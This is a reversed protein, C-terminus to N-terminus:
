GSRLRSLRQAADKYNLDLSVLKEYEAIAEATSGRDELLRALQYRGDKAEESLEDEVLPLFLKYQQIALDILGRKAFCIALGRHSGKRLRPDNVTKQFEAAAGDIDGITLLNRALNFRHNMDTPQREVRMRYEAIEIELLQKRAAQAEASGPPLNKLREQAEHIRLDGLKITITFDHPDIQQAQEYSRRAEAIENIRRHIDGKKVWLFKDGPMKQLDEDIYRLVERADEVTRINRNLVEQRRAAETSAIQTRYDTAQGASTRKLMSQLAMWNKLTRGAEPHSPMAKDLASMTALAKELAQEDKKGSANFREMYLHALQWLVKDNFLGTARFEEGLMIAVDGVPKMTAALKVAAEFFSVLAKSDGTKGYTKAASVYQKLPDNSPIALKLSGLGFLGGGKSGEKAKRRAIPILHKVIEPNAPDVEFCEGLITLADDTAGKDALQKVRTLHKSLDPM